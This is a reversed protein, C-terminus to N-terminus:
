LDRSVLHMERPLAMHELTAAGFGYVFHNDRV